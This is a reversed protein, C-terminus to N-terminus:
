YKSDAFEVWGGAKVLAKDFESIQYRFTAKGKESEITLSNEEFDVSVKAGGGKHGFMMEIVEESLEVALMGCNFM